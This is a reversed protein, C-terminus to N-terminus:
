PLPVRVPSLYIVVGMLAIAGVWFAASVYPAMLTWRKHPTRYVLPERRFLDPNFMM